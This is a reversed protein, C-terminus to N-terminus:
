SKGRFRSSCPNSLPGLCCATTLWDGVQEALDAFKPSAEVGLVKQAGARLAFLSLIGTGCGVDLVTKSAMDAIGVIAAQYAETRAQALHPPPQHQMFSARTTPTGVHLPVPAKESCSAVRRHLTGRARVCAM